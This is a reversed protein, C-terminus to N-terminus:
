RRAPLPASSSRRVSRNTWRPWRPSRARRTSRRPRPYHFVSPPQYQPGPMKGRKGYLLVEHFNRFVLGMGMVGKDWVASATFDFGWAEMTKLAHHINSSTCWLFLAADKHAIDRVLKGGIKFNQIEEDTLTEYHQDPGRSDGLETYHDFKTPPDAYILAVPGIPADIKTAAAAASIKKHKAKRAAKYWHSRAAHVLGKVSNLVGAKHNAVLAKEFEKPPMTAIRQAEQARNKDLEIEKLYEMFSKGAQSIKKGRGPGAGREVKVLLGGLRYRARMRSENIERLEDPTYLGSNKMMTEFTDLDRQVALAEAPDKAAAIRREVETVLKAIDQRKHAGPRASTKEVVAPLKKPKQKLPCRNPKRNRYAV